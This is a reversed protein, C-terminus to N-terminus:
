FLLMHSKHTIIQATLTILITM